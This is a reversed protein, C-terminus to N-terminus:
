QYHWGSRSVSSGEYTSCRDNWLKVRAHWITIQAEQICATNYSPVHCSTNVLLATRHLQGLIVLVCRRSSPSVCVNMHGYNAHTLVMAFGQLYAKV